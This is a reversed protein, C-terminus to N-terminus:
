NKKLLSESTYYSTMLLLLLLFFLIFLIHSYTLEVVVVILTGIMEDVEVEEVDHGRGGHQRSRQLDDIAQNHYKQEGLNKKKVGLLPPADAQEQM